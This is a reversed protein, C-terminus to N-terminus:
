PKANFTLRSVVLYAAIFGFSAFFISDWTLLQMALFRIFTYEHWKYLPTLTSTSTSHIYGIIIPTTYTMILGFVVAILGFVSGIIGRLRNNGSTLAGFGLAGLAGCLALGLSVYDQVYSTLIRMLLGAVCIGIFGGLVGLHLHRISEQKSPDVSSQKADKAFITLKPKKFAALWINVLYLLVTFSLAGWVFSPEMWSVTNSQQLPLNVLVMFLLLSVILFKLLDNILYGSSSMGIKLTMKNKITSFSLKRNNLPLRGIYALLRDKAFGLLAAMAILIGFGIVIKSFPGFDTWNLASPAASTQLCVWSVLVIGYVFLLSLALKFLDKKAKSDAYFALGVFVLPVYFAIYLNQTQDGVSFTATVNFTGKGVELATVNLFNVFGTSDGGNNVAWYPYYSQSLMLYAPEPTNGSVQIKNFSQTYNIQAQPLISSSLDNITLSALVPLQGEDKLAFVVGEFYLNEYVASEKDNFVLSFYKTANNFFNIYNASDTQDNIYNAYDTQNKQILVYKAGCLTALLTLESANFNWTGTTINFTPEQVGNFYDALQSFLASNPPYARLSMVPSGIIEHNILTSEYNTSGWTLPYALVRFDGSQNRIFQDGDTLAIVPSTQPFLGITLDAFIITALCVILIIKFSKSKMWHFRISRQNFFDSLCLLGYGTCMCLSFIVLSMARDIARIFFITVFNMLPTGTAVLAFFAFTLWYFIYNKRDFKSQAGSVFMPILSIAFVSVGLYFEFEAFESIAQDAFSPRIFFQSPAPVWLSLVSGPTVSLAQTNQLITFSFLFPAAFLTVITTLELLRKLITMNVNKKYNIIFYYCIRFLFFFLSFIMTQIDTLFLIILGTSAFFMNRKSPSVLMKEFLLFVAPLLAAAMVFNSHGDNVQSFYYCSFTYAISIIWAIWTKKFYYKALKYSCFQAIFLTIFEVIKLSLILNNTVASLLTFLSLGIDPFISIYFWTAISGGYFNPLWYAGTPLHGSHVIVLDQAVGAFTQYADNIPSNGVMINNSTFIFSGYLFTFIISIMAFLLILKNKLIGQILRKPINVDKISKSQEM